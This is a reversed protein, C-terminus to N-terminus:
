ARESQESTIGLYNTRRPRWYPSLRKGPALAFAVEVYIRAVGAKTLVLCMSRRRRRDNAFIVAGDTGRMRARLGLTREPLDRRILRTQNDQRDHLGAENVHASPQAVHLDRLTLHSSPRGAQARQWFARSGQM